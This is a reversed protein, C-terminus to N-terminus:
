KCPQPCACSSVSNFSSGNSSQSSSFKSICTVIFSFIYAVSPAASVSARHKSDKTQCYGHTKSSEFRPDSCQCDKEIYDQFCSRFCGEVSYSGKYYYHATPKTELCDGYPQPMRETRIQLKLATEANSLPLFSPLPFFSSVYKIGFSTTFGTAANYGFADPFPEENQSHVAVRIGASETLPLYDSQNSKLMLRLGYAPGARTSTYTPPDKNNFTYCAGYVPDIRSEFDSFHITHSQNYLSVTPDPLSVRGYRM